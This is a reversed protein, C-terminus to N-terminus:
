SSPLIRWALRRGGPRGRRTAGTRLCPGGHRRGARRTRGVQVAHDGGRVNPGAKDGRDSRGSQDPHARPRHRRRAVPDHLRCRRGTAGARLGGRNSVPTHNRHGARPRRPFPLRDRQHPNRAQALGGRLDADQELDGHHRHRGGHLVRADETPRIAVSLRSSMEEVFRERAEAAPDCVLVQEISRVACVGMLQTRAQAGAGFIGVTRANERALYRTAVGSAAGTRMATLFGAEMVALLAGSRPDNLLLTALTTPLGFRKPNDPFVTVAKLALVGGEPSGESESGGLHAPMGLHLGKQDALRIATRQPMTVRGLALQRFGEEVAAIADKMTLVSEVDRRTLWLVM